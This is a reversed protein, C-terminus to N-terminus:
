LGAMPSISAYPLRNHFPDRAIGLGHCAADAAPRKQETAPHRRHKCGETQAHALQTDFLGEAALKDAIARAIDFAPQEVAVVPAALVPDVAVPVPSQTQAPIEAAPTAVPASPDAIVDDPTLDM